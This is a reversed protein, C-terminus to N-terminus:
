GQRNKKLLGISSRRWFILALYSEGFWAGFFCGFPDRLPMGVIWYYLCSCAGYFAMHGIFRFVKGWRFKMGYWGGIALFGDVHWCILATFCVTWLAKSGSYSSHLFTHYAVILFMLIGRFVEVNGDRQVKGNETTM